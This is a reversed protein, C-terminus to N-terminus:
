VTAFAQFIFVCGRFVAAGVKLPEFAVIGIEVRGCAEEVLASAIFLGHREQAHIEVIGVSEEASRHANGFGLAMAVVGANVQVAGVFQLIIFFHFAIAVQCQAVRVVQFEGVLAEDICGLSFAVAHCELVPELLAQLMEGVVLREKGPEGVIEGLMM